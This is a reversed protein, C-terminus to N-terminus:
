TVTIQLPASIGVNGNKDIFQATYEQKGTNSAFSVSYTDTELIGTTAKIIMGNEDRIMIIGGTKANGTITLKGGVRTGNSTLTPVFANTSYTVGSTVDAVQVNNLRNMSTRWINVDAATLANTNETSLLVGIMSAAASGANAFANYAYGKAQESAVAIQTDTVSAKGNINNRTIGSVQGTDGITYSYQGYNAYTDAIIKHIGAYETKEKAALIKEEIIKNDLDQKALEIQQYALGDNSLGVVFGNSDLIPTGYQRLIEAGTKRKTLEAIEGNTAHIDNQLKISDLEKELKIKELYLNKEATEWQLAGTMAGTVVSSNLNAMVQVIVQGKIDQTIENDALLEALVEKTRVYVSDGDLSAEILQKYKGNVDLETDLLITTEILAM